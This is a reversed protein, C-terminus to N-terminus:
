KALERASDGCWCDIDADAGATLLAEAIQPLEDRVACRLPTPNRTGNKYMFVMNPDAKNKLLLRVMPLDRNFTAEYLATSPAGNTLDDVNINFALLIKVLEMKRNRVAYFLANMDGNKINIDHYLDDIVSNVNDMGYWYMALEERFPELAKRFKMEESNESLYQTVVANFKESM